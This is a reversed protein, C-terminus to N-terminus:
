HDRPDWKASRGLPHEAAAKSRAKEFVARARKFRANFTSRKMPYFRCVYSVIEDYTAERSEIAIDEIIGYILASNVTLVDSKYAEVDHEIMQALRHRAIERARAGAKLM